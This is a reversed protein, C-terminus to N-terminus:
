VTKKTPHDLDLIVGDVNFDLHIMPESGDFFAIQQGKGDTGFVGIDIFGDGEGNKRWGVIQGATSRPLGLADYVENLFVHGRYQLRDNMANQVGNLFLVRIDRDPSWNVNDKTFFAAYPSTELAKEPDTVDYCTKPEGKEPTRKVAEYRLEREQEEGYKEAVRRRYSEFAKNLSTYAAAAASYRARVVGHGWLIGTVSAAALSFPLVYHKAIRPVSAAVVRLKMPSRDKEAFEHNDVAEDIAQLDFKLQEVDPQSKLVARGVLVAAGVLGVVGGVVGATPAVGKAWLGVTGLKSGVTSLISM